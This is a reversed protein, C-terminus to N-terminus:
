PAFIDLINWMLFHLGQVVIELVTFKKLIPEDTSGDDIDRGLIFVIIRNTPSGFYSTVDNGTSIYLIM